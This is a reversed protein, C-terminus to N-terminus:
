NAAPTYPHPNVPAGPRVLMLGDVIVRDGPKLGQEVVWNDGARDGLVVTRAEAHNGAGVTMVSQLGQLEEVARQPIALANERERLRLRVRGFQGPLLTHKPNRFTVQIELTGTKSDVENTANEFHGQYPFVSNDALLLQFHAHRLDEGKPDKLSKLYDAESIKFRVWIPDLPVITTLPQTSNKTVLSGVQVTSDGIRGSIPAAVTAYELNLQATKLLAQNAELQAASTEIQIRTSLRTQEVNAQRAAVNAKAAKLEAVANDLDQKAAADQSVLPTLRDVDQQAKLENAQAQALDAQAQLLAVQRKAFEVNAESQAVDGKAKQVEAQYPRLDLIYLPEGAKVDQGTQFLRKRVYGDVQGRIDAADRAFTQAAYEGYIPVSQPQVDVVSVPLAPMASVREANSKACSATFSILIIAALAGTIKRFDALMGSDGQPSLHHRTSVLRLLRTSWNTLQKGTCNLFFHSGMRIFRRTTAIARGSAGRNQGGGFLFKRSMAQLRSARLLDRLAGPYGLSHDIVVEAAFLLQVFSRQLLDKRRQQQGKLLERGRVAIGRLREFAHQSANQLDSRLLGARRGHQEELSNLVSASIVLLDPERRQIVHKGGNQLASALLFNEPREIRPVGGHVDHADTTKIVTGRLAQLRHPGASLVRQLPAHQLLMSVLRNIENHRTHPRLM